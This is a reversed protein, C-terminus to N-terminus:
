RAMEAFIRGMYRPLKDFPLVAPAVPRGPFHTKVVAMNLHKLMLTDLLVQNVKIGVTSVAQALYEDLLSITDQGGKRRTSLGPMSEDHAEVERSRVAELRMQDALYSDMWMATEARVYDSSQFGRRAAEQALYEHEMMIIAMNRLSSRFAGKNAFNLPYPGFRLKWLFDALTWQSGDDFTVLMERLRAQLAARALDYQNDSMQVPRMGEGAADNKSAIAFTKEIQEAVFALKEAPVKTQKGAMVSKFFRRYALKKKRAMLKKRVQKEFFSAGSGAPFPQAREKEVRFLYFADKFEVPQSVDGAQLRWLVKEVVPESQGWSITYATGLEGWIGSDVSDAIKRRASDAYARSEFVLEQVDLTRRADNMAVKLEGAAVTIDSFVDNLLAELMAEKEFQRALAKFRPRKALGHQRGSQALLKEGILSALYLQRSQKDNDPFQAFYPTLAYRSKFEDVSISRKGITAVVTPDPYERCSFLVSM